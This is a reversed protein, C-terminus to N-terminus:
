VYLRGAAAKVKAKEKKNRKKIAKKIKRHPETDV